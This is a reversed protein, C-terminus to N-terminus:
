KDGQMESIWIAFRSKLTAAAVEKKKNEQM